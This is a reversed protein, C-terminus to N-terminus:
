RSPNATRQRIGIPWGSTVKNCFSPLGLRFRVMTMATYSRQEVMSSHPWQQNRFSSEFRRDKPYSGLSIVM